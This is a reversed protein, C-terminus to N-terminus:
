EWYELERVLIEAPLHIKNFTRCQTWNGHDDFESYECYTIQTEERGNEGMNTHMHKEIVNHNQDFVNTQVTERGTKPETVTIKVPYGDRDTKIVRIETVVGDETVVSKHRGLFSSKKVSMRVIRGNVEKNYELRGKDQSTLSIRAIVRGGARLTSRTSVANEFLSEAETQIHQASDMTASYIENGYIDYVSSNVYMVATGRNNVQWVEPRIHWVKATQVKGNMGGFPQDKYASGCSSLMASCVAALIM